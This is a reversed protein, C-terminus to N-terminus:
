CNHGNKPCSFKVPATPARSGCDPHTPSEQAHRRMLLEEHPVEWDPTRASGGRRVPHPRRRSQLERWRQSSTDQSVVTRSLDGGLQQQRCRLRLLGKSCKDRM